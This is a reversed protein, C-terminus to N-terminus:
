GGAAGGVEGTGPAAPAADDGPAAPPPPAAFDIPPVTDVTASAVGLTVVIRPALTSLGAVLGKMPGADPSVLAALQAAPIASLAPALVKTDITIRLGEYLSTAQDGEVKRTPKPIEIKIGLQEFAKAPDDSLGPIPTAKGASTIGGPGIEFQQDALMMKGWAAKGTAVGKAGDTSARAVTELGGMTIMGGLLRVEGLESRASGRVPSKEASMRSVSVYGDMDVLAALPAPLGPASPTASARSPASPLAGELVGQVGGLPDPAGGGGDKKPAEDADPGQVSGDPSFGVEALATKDGSTTRMVMGPAPEDKQAAPDGPYQSNVQAPYGKGTLPNDAPLGLAEGFTRLGEGVPDGPWFWSGRGSSSGSDAEVKSYAMEFELQPTTPIPISPEYVEIRLPAAWASAAFGGYEAARRPAAEASGGAVPVMTAVVGAAVLVKTRYALRISSARQFPGATSVRINM